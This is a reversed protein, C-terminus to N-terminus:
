RDNSCSYYWCNGLPPIPSGCCRSSSLKETTWHSKTNRLDARTCAMGGSAPVCRQARDTTASVCARAWAALRKPQRWAGPEQHCWTRTSTRTHIYLAQKGLVLEGDLFFIRWFVPGRLEFLKQVGYELSILWLKKKWQWKNNNNYFIIKRKEREIERERERERERETQRDREREHTHTHTHTQTHIHQLQSFTYANICASNTYRFFRSWLLFKSKMSITNLKVYIQVGSMCRTSLTILIFWFRASSSRWNKGEGKEGGFQCLLIYM